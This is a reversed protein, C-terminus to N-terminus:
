SRTAKQGQTSATMWCPQCLGIIVAASSVALARLGPLAAPSRSSGVARGVGQQLLSRHVQNPGAAAAADGVLFSVGGSAVLLGEVVTDIELAGECLWSTKENQEGQEDCSAPTHRKFTQLIFAETQGSVCSASSACPARTICRGWTKSGVGGLCVWVRAPWLSCVCVCVGTCPQEM